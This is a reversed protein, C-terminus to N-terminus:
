AAGSRALPAKAFHWAPPSEDIMRIEAGFLMNRAEKIEEESANALDAGSSMMGTSKRQRIQEESLGSIIVALHAIWDRHSRYYLTM